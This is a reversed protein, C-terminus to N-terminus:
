FKELIEFINIRFIEVELFILKFFVMILKEGKFILKM